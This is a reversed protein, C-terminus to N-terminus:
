PLALRLCRSHRIVIDGAAVGSVLVNLNAASGFNGTVYATKTLSPSIFTVMIVTTLSAQKVRTVRLEWSENATTVSGTDFFAAISTTSLKVRKANANNAFYGFFVFEESDGNAALVHLTQTTLSQDAASAASSVQATLEGTRMPACTSSFGPIRSLFRGESHTDGNVVLTGLPTGGTFATAGSLLHLKDPLKATGGSALSDLVSSYAMAGEGPLMDRVPTNLWVRHLYPVEKYDPGNFGDGAVEYFWHPGIMDSDIRADRITHIAGPCYFRMEGPEIEVRLIGRVGYAWGANLAGNPFHSAVYTPSTFNAGGTGDGLGASISGNRNITTHLMQGPLNFPNLLNTASLALTVGQIAVANPTLSPKWEMLFTMSTIDETHESGLYLLTRGGSRLAGGVIYPDTATTGGGNLSSEWATGVLPLDGPRIAKGVTGGTGGVTVNVPVSFTTPSLVTVTHQGTLSPTSTAHGGIGVVDGTTLGHATSTTIVTPNAVSSTTITANPLRDFKELFQIENSVKAADAAIRAAEEASLESEPVLKIAQDGTAGAAIHFIAGTDSAKAVRDYTQAPFDLIESETAM